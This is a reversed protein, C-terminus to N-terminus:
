RDAHPDVYGPISSANRFLDSVIFRALDSYSFKVGYSALVALIVGGMDICENSMTISHIQVPHLALLRHLMASVVGFYHPIAM